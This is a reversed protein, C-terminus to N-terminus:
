MRYSEIIEKMKIATPSIDLFNLAIMAIEIEIKSYIDSRYILDQNISSLVFESIIGLGYGKEVFKVVTEPQEVIFSKEFNIGKYSHLIEMATEQGAHCFILKEAQEEYFNLIKSIPRNNIVCMKDM